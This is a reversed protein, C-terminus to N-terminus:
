VGLRVLDTFANPPQRDRHLHLQAGVVHNVLWIMVDPPSPAGDKDRKNRCPPSKSRATKAVCSQSDFDGGQGAFVRSLSPAGELSQRSFRGPTRFPAIILGTHTAQDGDRREHKQQRHGHPRLATAPMASSAMDTATSHMGTAKGAMSAAPMDTASAGEAARMRTAHPGAVPKRLSEIMRRISGERLAGEMIEVTM